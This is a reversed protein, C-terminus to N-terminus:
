RVHYMSHVLHAATDIIKCLVGERIRCVYVMWGAGVGPRLNPPLLCQLLLRWSVLGTSTKGRGIGPVLPEDDAAPEASFYRASPLARAAPRRLAERRAISTAARLAPRRLLASASMM